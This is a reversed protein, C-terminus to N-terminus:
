SAESLPRSGAVSVLSLFDGGGAAVLHPLTARATADALSCAAGVPRSAGTILAAKGQLLNV